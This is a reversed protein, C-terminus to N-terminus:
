ALERPQIELAAAHPGGELLPLGRPVVYNVRIRPEEAELEHIWDPVTM